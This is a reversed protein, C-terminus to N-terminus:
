RCGYMQVKQIIQLSKLCHCNSVTVFIQHKTICLMMFPHSQNLLWTFDSSWTAGQSCSATGTYTACQYGTLHRLSEDIASHSEEAHQRWRQCPRYHQDWMSHLIAMNKGLEGMCHQRRVHSQQWQTCHCVFPHITGRRDTAGPCVCLIAVGAGEIARVLSSVNSVQLRYGTADKSDLGTGTHM